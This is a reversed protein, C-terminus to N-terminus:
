DNSRSVVSESIQTLTDMKEVTLDTDPIYIDFEKEIFVGIQALSFSDMLGGTILPEYDDLPYASNNLFQRCIYARLKEKIEDVNMM